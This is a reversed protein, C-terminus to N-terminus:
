SGLMKRFDDQKKESSGVGSDVISIAGIGPKRAKGLGARPRSAATRPVFMGGSAAPTAATVSSGQASDQSFLLSKGMFEFPENKLMISGVDAANEFVVVAENKDLFVELRKVPALKEVAQQLLGEQVGDPLNKIRLARGARRANRNSTDERYRATVRTDALTV